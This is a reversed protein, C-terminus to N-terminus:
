PGRRQVRLTAAYLARDAELATLRADGAFAAGGVSVTVRMRRAANTFAPASASPSPPADPGDGRLPVGFEDGGLRARGFSEYFEVLAMVVEIPAGDPFKLM